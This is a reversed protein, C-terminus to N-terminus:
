LFASLKLGDPWALFCVLIASSLPLFNHAVSNLVSSGLVSSATCVRKLGELSTPGGESVSGTLLKLISSSLYLLCSHESGDPLLMDASSLVMFTLETLFGEDGCVSLINVIYLMFIALIRNLTQGRQGLIHQTM